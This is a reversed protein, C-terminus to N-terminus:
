ALISLRGPSTRSTGEPMPGAEVAPREPARGTMGTWPTRRPQQGPQGQSQSHSHATGAGGQNLNLHSVPIQQEHLIHEL